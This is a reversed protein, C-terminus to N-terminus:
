LQFLMKFPFEFSFNKYSIKVMEPRAQIVHNLVEVKLLRCGMVTLMGTCHQPVGVTEHEEFLGVEFGASAIERAASSGAPGAGVVIVDFDM